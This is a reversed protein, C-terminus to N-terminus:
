PHPLTFHFTPGSGPTYGCHGGQLEALRRVISLGLGHSANSDHLLHFPSFVDAPSTGTIGPGSDRIWFRHHDTEKEWGLSIVPSPGTHQLANQLLNWWILELWPAVGDVEPWSSPQHIAAQKQRIPRDLRLLTEEVIAAMGLSKRPLPQAIAKLLFSTRAIIKTIEDTSTFVPKIAASATPVTEALMDATAIIGGLPTRLDHSVRRAMTLLEGRLRANDRSLAHRAAAEQLLPVLQARSWGDVPLAADQGGFRLVAWRPLSETDLLDEPRTGGSAEGPAILLFELGSSSPGAVAAAVDPVATAVADPFAAHVAEGLAPPFASAPGLSIVSVVKMVPLSPLPPNLALM